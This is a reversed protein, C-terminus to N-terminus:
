NNRLEQFINNGGSQDIKNFQHRESKDMPKNKNRNHEKLNQSPLNTM